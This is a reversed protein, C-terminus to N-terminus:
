AASPIEVYEVRSAPAPIPDGHRRLAELHLEIAERILMRADDESEGVAACGAVTTAPKPPTLM